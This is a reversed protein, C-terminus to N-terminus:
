PRIVQDLHEHSPAMDAWKKQFMRRPAIFPHGASTRAEPFMPAMFDIVYEDCQIWAHFSTDSSQVQGETLTAFSIVNRQQKNVALFFAAGALQVADKKYFERLIAAGATSFFM